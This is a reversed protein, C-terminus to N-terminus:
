DQCDTLGPDSDILLHNRRLINNRLSTPFFWPSNSKLFDMSDNKLQDTLTFKDAELVRIRNDEDFSIQIKDSM